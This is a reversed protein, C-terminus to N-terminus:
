TPVASKVFVSPLTVILSGVRVEAVPPNTAPSTPFNIVMAVPVFAPCYLITVKVSPLLTSTSLFKSAVPDEIVKILRGLPIFILKRFPLPNVVQAFEVTYAAPATTCSNVPEGFLHNKVAAPPVEFPVSTCSSIPTVSQTAYSPSTSM